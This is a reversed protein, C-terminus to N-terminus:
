AVATSTRDPDREASGIADRLGALSAEVGAEAPLTPDEHEISIPGDYGASALAGVLDAWEVIPRGRGVACFHWPMEDAEAPWRFDLIGHLAVREPYVITDKGHVFGVHEGIAAVTRSPDMGQWWLHSPDLNVQINPGVDGLLRRFSEANYISAGPHLELCISVGPAQREAWRSLESWYPRISSDWQADWLGEMDPLWAGGAFVPWSGDGPAGPCGSIAVVRPIKLLAALHVADRLARDHESAVSRRPHLPNGSANLAVVRVGAHGLLEILRDREAESALLARIDLHPAPSYGGVGLEVASIRRQNCWRVV